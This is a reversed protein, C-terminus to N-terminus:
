LSFPPLKGKNDRFRAVQRNLILSLVEANMAHNVSFEVARKTFVIRDIVDVAVLPVISRRVKFEDGM